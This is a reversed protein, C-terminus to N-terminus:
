LAGRSHRQSAHFSDSLARFGVSRRGAAPRSAVHRPEELWEEEHRQQERLLEDEEEQRAAVFRGAEGRFWQATVGLGGSGEPRGVKTPGGGGGYRFSPSVSARGGMRARQATGPEGMGAAVEDDEAAGAEDHTHDNVASLEEQLHTIEGLMTHATEELQSLASELLEVRQQRLRAEVIESSRVEDDGEERVRRRRRRTPAPQQGGGPEPSPAPSAHQQQRARRQALRREALPVAARQQARPQHTEARLGPIVAATAPVLPPLM